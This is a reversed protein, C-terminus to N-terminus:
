PTPTKTPPPTDPPSPTKPTSPPTTSPTQTPTPTPTPTPTETPKTPATTPTTSPSTTPTTTPTTSPTTSPKTPATTPTTETTRTPDTTRTTRTPDASPQTTPTDVTTSPTQGVDGTAPLDDSKRLAIGAVVSGALVLVALAAVLLPKKARRALVATASPKGNAGAGAAGTRAGAGGTGGGAAGAGAAGGGAGSAGAAGGGATGAGTPGGAAVAGAVGAAGAATTAAATDPRTPDSAAATPTNATPTPFSGASPSLTALKAATPRAEPSKALMQLLIPEFPGALEPRLQSPPVPTADVHQYLVATPHDGTFPPRGAVLQYLVCGLAYVDSEPGAQLGRAREPSLYHPTGLIQGTVTLDNTEAGQIQAIGFDAVKVRGDASVMLNSPKIDRHVVNEAHAVALGAAAQQVIEIARAWPLPGDETLETAVSRGEVLEMVLYFKDNEQGFDYVGVIHQDSLRAAARAERQFREAAATDAGSKLMLKVAVERGLLEDTARYVEGMGGRGLSVGLRYRRAILM